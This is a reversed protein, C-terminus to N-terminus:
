RRPFATNTPMSRSLPMGCPTIGPKDSKFAPNMPDMYHLIKRESTAKSGGQYTMWSGALFSGAAILIVILVTLRRKM